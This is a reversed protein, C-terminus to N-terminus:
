GAVTLSSDTTTGDAEEVRRGRLRLPHVHFRILPTLPNAPGHQGAELGSGLLQTHTTEHELRTDILVLREGEITPSAECLGLAPALVRGRRGADTELLLETLM